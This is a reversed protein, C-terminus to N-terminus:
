KWTPNPTHMVYMNYGKKFYRKTSKLQHVNSWRKLQKEVQNFNYTHIIQIFSISVNIKQLYTDYIHWTTQVCNDTKFDSNQLCLYFSAIPM